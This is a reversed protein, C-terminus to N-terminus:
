GGLREETIDLSRLAKIANAWLTLGAGVVAFQPAKEYITVQIEPRQRKLAIAACLGGIGAGIVLVQKLKDAMDGEILSDSRFGGEVQALCAKAVPSKIHGAHQSLCATVACAAACLPSRTRFTWGTARLSLCLIPTR